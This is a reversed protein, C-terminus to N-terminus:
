FSFLFALLSILLDRLRKLAITIQAEVTKVSLQLKDAIAQNSLKEMRSMFFIEKCKEPLRDMAQMLMEEQEAVLMNELANDNTFQPNSYDKMRRQAVKNAEIYNLAANRVGQYLYMKLSFRIQWDGHRSWFRIFFEQVIEKAEEVDGIYKLAFLTLPRYYQDFIFKFAREDGEKLSRVLDEEPYEKV